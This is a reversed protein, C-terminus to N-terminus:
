IAKTLIIFGFIVLAVGGFGLAVGSGIDPPLASVVNGTIVSAIPSSVGSLIENMPQVNTAPISSTPVIADSTASIVSPLNLSKAIQQASGNTYTSWPRFTEGAAKYVSYAASANIQPDYVANNNYQPHASGYIQWLGRSGSGSKTGAATEPNYAMPNGGSEAVAVAVAVKLADGRFGANYAYQEIQTPTLATM